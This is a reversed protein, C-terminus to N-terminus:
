PEFGVLYLLDREIEVPSAGEIVFGRAILQRESLLLLIEVVEDVRFKAEPVTTEAKRGADDLPLVQVQYEMIQDAVHGVDM